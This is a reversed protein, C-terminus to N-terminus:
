PMPYDDANLVWGPQRSFDLRPPCFIDVLRNVGPDMARTTHIAPPPIVAVSPAACFEQEDNRWMNMNPVWQWRLYHIFSGELALSYQEFDDHHHPSMKTIDRPGIMLNAFNIMFTTCRFIAGIRGPEEPVDLGYTRVRFGDSPAPWTQLPPINHHPERYAGANVCREVLDNSRTTFLRILRGEAGVTVTSDGPPVFTISPGQIPHNEGGISVTASVGADPLILVWEDIEGRNEFLSGVNAQSYAIVANQGRAYWTRVLAGADQPASEYFRIYDPPSYGTVTAGTARVSNLRARPDSKDYM